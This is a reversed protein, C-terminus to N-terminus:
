TVLSRALSGLLVVAAAIVFVLVDNIIAVLSDVPWATQM